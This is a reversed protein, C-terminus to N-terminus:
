FSYNLGNIPFLWNKILFVGLSFDQASNCANSHAYKTVLWCPKISLATQLIKLASFQAHLSFAAVNM